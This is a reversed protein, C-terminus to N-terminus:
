ASMMPLLSTSRSLICTFHVIKNKLQTSQSLHTSSASLGMRLIIEGSEDWSLGNKNATEQEVVGVAEKLAVLWSEGLLILTNQHRYAGSTALKRGINRGKQEEPHV